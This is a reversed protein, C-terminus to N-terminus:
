RAPEIPPRNAVPTVPLAGHRLVTAGTIRSLYGAIAEVAASTDGDPIHAAILIKRLEHARMIYSLVHAIACHEDPDSLQEMEYTLFSACLPSAGHRALRDLIDSRGMGNHSLCVLHARDGKLAQTLDSDLDLTCCEPHIALVLAGESPSQIKPDHMM